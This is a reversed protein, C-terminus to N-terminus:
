RDQKPMWCLQEVSTLPVYLDDIHEKIQQKDLASYDVNLLENIIDQEFRKRLTKAPIGGVIEYPQVDKTVVAGAAIVAGQHIHVGSMIIAGTGIWVDDDVIINGHSEAEYKQSKLTHTKFPFTSIYDTAHEGSLVFVVNPAISCYNGIELRNVENHSIINLLGYTEKGVSVTNIEFYGGMYTGNHANVERWKRRAIYHTLRNKISSWM